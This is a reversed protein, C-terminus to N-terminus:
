MKNELERRRIGRWRLATTYEVLRQREDKQNSQLKARKAKVSKEFRWKHRRVEVPELRGIMNAVNRADDYQKLRTLSVVM